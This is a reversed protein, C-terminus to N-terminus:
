GVVELEGTVGRRTAPTRTTRTPMGSGHRGRHIKGWIPIAVTPVAVTEWGMGRSDAFFPLSVM